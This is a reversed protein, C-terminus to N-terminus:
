SCTWARAKARRQNSLHPYARALPAQKSFSAQLGGKKPHRLLGPFEGPRPEVSVTRPALKEEEGFCRRKQSDNEKAESKSEETSDSQFDKRRGRARIVMAQASTLYYGGRRQQEHRKRRENADICGNCSSNRRFESTKDGGDRGSRVTGVRVDPLPSNRKGRPELARSKILREKTCFISCRERRNM